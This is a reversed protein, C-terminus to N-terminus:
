CVGCEGAMVYGDMADRQSEAHGHVGAGSCLSRGEGKEGWHRMCTVDVEGEVGAMLPLRVGFHM